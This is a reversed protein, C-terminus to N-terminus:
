TRIIHFPRLPDLPLDHVNSSLGLRDRVFLCFLTVSVAVKPNLPKVADGVPDGKKGGCIISWTFDLSTFTGGTTGGEEGCVQSAPFGLPKLLCLTQTLAQSSGVGFGSEAM